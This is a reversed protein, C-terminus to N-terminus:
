TFDYQRNKYTTKFYTNSNLTDALGKAGEKYGLENYIDMLIRRVRPPYSFAMLKVADLESIEMKKFHADLLRQYVDMPTTGPIEKISKIADLLRLHHFNTKDDVEIYSKICEIRLNMKEFKRVPKPTAITIVMPVQETLQMRNYIYPGTIYGNLERTIFDLKEQFSLPRSRLGLLSPKPRYFAGKEAKEVIGKKKLEALIVAVHGRQSPAFALDRYTFIKGEPIAQVQSIIQKRFSQMHKQNQHM